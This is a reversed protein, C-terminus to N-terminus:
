SLPTWEDSQQLKSRTKKDTFFRTLGCDECIAPYLRARKGRTFNGLAPLYDTAEGYSSIGNLYLYINRSGCNPCPTMRETIKAM